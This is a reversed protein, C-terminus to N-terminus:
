AYIETRAQACHGTATRDDEIGKTTTMIKM